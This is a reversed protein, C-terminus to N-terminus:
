KKSLVVFSRASVSYSNDKVLETLDEKFDEPSDKATDIIRHWDGKEMVQFKKPKWHTNIMIYLDTDNIKLLENQGKLYYALQHAEPGFDPNGEAGYWKVDGKWFRSRFISAHKKRFAIVKQFFRFVDPFQKKRDWNIWVTEDYVNYPNFQASVGDPNTQTQLFEDGARFMPIGNSFM